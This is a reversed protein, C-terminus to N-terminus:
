IWTDDGIMALRNEIAEDDDDDDDARQNARPDAAAKPPLGLREREDMEFKEEELQERKMQFWDRGKMAAQLQGSALGLDREIEAAEGEKKPDVWDEGPYRVKNAFVLEPEVRLARRQEGTLAVAGMAIWYRVCARYFPRDHRRYIFTRVAGNRSRAGLQEVKSSSFTVGKLDGTLESYGMNVGAAMTRDLLQITSQYTPPPVNHSAVKLEAGTPMYGIVGPEIREIPDGNADVVAYGPSGDVLARSQQAVGTFYLGYAAAARALMLYAESFGDRERALRVSAVPVPTGRIQGIKDSLIAWQCDRKQLRRMGPAGLAAFAPRFMNFMDQDEPLGEMVHYAVVRKNAFEVGQRVVNGARTKGTLELPLQDADLLELAPGEPADMWAETIANHTGCEGARFLEKFFLRQSQDISRERDLDVHECLSIWRRDLADNLDPWMTDARVEIGRSVIRDALKAEAGKWLPDNDCLWDVRRRTLAMTQDILANPGIRRPDFDPDARDIRGAM